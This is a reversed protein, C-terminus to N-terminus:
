DTIEGNLIESVLKETKYVYKLAEIIGRSDTAVSRNNKPLFIYYGALSELNGDHVLGVIEGNTNIVSSGSNGGVIDNTSAFCVPISLDLEPPPIKWKEHLGWPYTKRNFSHYRDYLGYFTTKAPAITGNYEYGSIIGGSIRLTSTADPPISNGYFLFVLEGLNQNLLQLINDESKRKQSIEELQDQTSLIFHIFPDKMSLIDDPSKNTLNIANEHNTLMARKFTYEVAEEGVKGGYMFQVLDNNQGLLRTLYHSHAGLLKKELNEDFEEPFINKITEEIDDNQYDPERDEEDLIMQKAYEVLRNAAKLYIPIYRSKLSYAYSQNVTQKLENITSDIREWIYCYKDNLKTDEKVESKLINEFNSKKEMISKDNLGILRGAFSKRGNGVSLLQHLQEYDDESNSHFMEYYIKYIDNYQNLRIPYLNDRYYFLESTSIIRDTNGPRGAVFVTEGDDAGSKSWKYYNDTKVPNGEDDYARYFAFDLEYRPYTFNDWDWGTAAIQFDPAMVLRIDNYRKYVYLSYKGGNYLAVIKCRLGTEKEYKSILEIKKQDRLTIKEENTKGDEMESLIEQSVDEIQILQDVYLAPIKREDQINEAYFGDRLINEDEKQIGSLQGRGCHHNTMILGDQSVFAASCGRGFQLASKQVHELWEKDPTFGYKKQFYEVPIEDFTWMSGFDSISFQADTSDTQEYINYQSFIISQFFLNFVVTLNILQNLKGTM